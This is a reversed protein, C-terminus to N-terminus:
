SNVVEMPLESIEEAPTAEPPQTTRGVALAAPLRQAFITHGLTAQHDQRRQARRARRVALVIRDRQAQQHMDAVRAKILENQMYATMATEETIGTQSV